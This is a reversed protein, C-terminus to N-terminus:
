LVVQKSVFYRYTQVLYIVAEKWIEIMEGELVVRLM